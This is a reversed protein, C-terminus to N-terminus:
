RLARRPIKRSGPISEHQDPQEPQKMNKQMGFMRFIGMELNSFVFVGCGDWTERVTIM